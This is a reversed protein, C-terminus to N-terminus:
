RSADEVWRRLANADMAGAQRAALHGNKFVFLAPIGQIGLEAALSPESDVDVKVFLAKPELAQATREFAPAM